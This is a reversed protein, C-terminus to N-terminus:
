RLHELKTWSTGMNSMAKRPPTSVISLGQM